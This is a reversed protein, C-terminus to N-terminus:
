ITWGPASVPLPGPTLSPASWERGRKWKQQKGSRLVRGEANVVGAYIRILQSEPHDPDVLSHSGIIVCAPTGAQQAAEAYESPSDLVVPKKWDVRGGRMTFLTAPCEGVKDVVKRAAELGDLTISILAQGHDV